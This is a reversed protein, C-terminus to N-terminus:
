PSGTSHRNLVSHDAEWHRCRGVELHDLAVVWAMVEDDVQDKVLLDM